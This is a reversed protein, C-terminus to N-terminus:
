DSTIVRGEGKIVLFFEGDSKDLASGLKNPAGSCDSLFRSAKFSGIGVVAASFTGDKFVGRRGSVTGSPSNISGTTCKVPVTVTRGNVSFRMPVEFELRGNQVDVDYRAKGGWGASVQCGQESRGQWVFDTQASSQATIAEFNANARLRDILKWGSRDEKLYVETVIEGSVKQRKIANSAILTGWTAALLLAVLLITRGYRYMLRNSKLHHISM